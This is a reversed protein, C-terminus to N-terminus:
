RVFEYLYARGRKGVRRVFGLEALCGLMMRALDDGVGLAQATEGSTFQGDMGRHQLGALELWDEGGDVAWQGLMRLPVRDLKLNKRRGSKKAALRLEEVELSVVRLHFNPDGILKRIGYLEAFVDVPRQHKPSKRRSSLVGDADVTRLWLQECCPWVVTVPCVRLLSELKPRIASFRRSQVEIIGREGVVDAVYDGIAVEREAWPDCAIKLVAHVSKEGLTGIGAMQRGNEAVTRCAAAFDEPNILWGDVGRIDERVAVSEAGGSMEDMMGAADGKRM